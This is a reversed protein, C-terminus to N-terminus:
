LKHLMGLFRLYDVNQSKNEYFRMEVCSMHTQTHTQTHTQSPTHTHTNTHTHTDLVVEFM